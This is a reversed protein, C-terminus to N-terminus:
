ATKPFGRVSSSSRTKTSLNMSPDRVPRFSGNPLGQVARVVFEIPRELIGLELYEDAVLQLSPLINEDYGNDADLYDILLGVRAPTLKAAM